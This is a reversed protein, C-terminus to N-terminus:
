ALAQAIEEAFKKINEHNIKSISDTTKEVKQIMSRFIPNMKDLLLEYGFYGRAVAKELLEVPFGKQMETEWGEDSGCMFLATKKNLLTNLNREVFKRVRANMQGIMFSGGVAVLDYNEPKIRKNKKLDALEVEHAKEKLIDALMGACKETTGYRTAYVILIKM